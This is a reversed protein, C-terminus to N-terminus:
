HEKSLIDLAEEYSEEFQDKYQFTNSADTTTYDLRGESIEATSIGPDYVTRGNKDTNYIIIQINKITFPREKLFPQINDNEVVSNLLEHASDILLRRLEEKTYHHKTSFALFLERIPGGPMSAGSGCPKINYKQKILKASDALTINVLQEGQSLHYNQHSSNMFYGIFLIFSSVISFMFKM